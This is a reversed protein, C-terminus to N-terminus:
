YNQWDFWSISTEYTSGANWIFLAVLTHPNGQGTFDVRRSSIAVHEPRYWQSTFIEEYRGISNLFSENLLYAMWGDDRLYSLGVEVFRQSDKFPPNSVIYDFNNNNMELGKTFDFNHWEDYGEPKQLSEDIDVGVLNTCVVKDALTNGWIGKGASPDLITGPKAKDGIYWLFYDLSSDVVKKPTFYQDHEKRENEGTYKNALLRSM